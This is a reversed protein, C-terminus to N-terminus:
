DPTAPLPTTWSSSPRGSRVLNKLEDGQPLLNWDKSTALRKPLDIAFARFSVEALNKHTVAISRKEPGDSSMSQLQYDPAEIGEALCRCRLGGISSPYAQWGERAAADAKVLNGPGPADRLFEALDAKGMAWWPVARFDPLRKQLDARVLARDDANTISAHLRRLRELRAELRAEKEGRAQESGPTSANARLAHWAELDDLVAGIKLLPHIAPDALAVVKSKAPDGAVLSAVDLSFLENSQEPRWGRTDALLEVFFYSVADRLSGRIEKPYTNPSIWREVRTVPEGGLATRLQVEAVLARTWATEDRARRARELLNANLRSAEELKQDQVLREVAAFDADAPPGSPRMAAPTRAPSTKPPPALIAPVASVGAGLALVALSALIGFRTARPMRRM